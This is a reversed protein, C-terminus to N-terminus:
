LCGEPSCASLSVSAAETMARSAIGGAGLGLIIAALAAAVHRIRLGHAQAIITTM